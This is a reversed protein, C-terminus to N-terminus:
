ESAPLSKEEALMVTLTKAREPVMKALIAAAKRESMNSMVRFLVDIDLTNFIAAAEKAKMGEYIKVLSMIKQREASDQEELLGKLEQRLGNLEQYKREMEGEAAKLLAERTQLMKEKEEIEQRRKELRQDYEKRTLEFGIDEEIADRWVGMEDKDESPADSDHKDGAAEAMAAGDDAVSEEEHKDDAHTDDKALAVNPQVRLDRVDVFVNALRASFALFTVFILVPLITFSKM